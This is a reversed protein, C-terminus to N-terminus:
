TAETTNSEKYGRPSYGVLSRQGHSKGLLFVPLPNGNGERPSRGLEPILGVDRKDGIKAFLNKVVLVVHSAWLIHIYSM